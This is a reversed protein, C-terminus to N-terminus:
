PLPRSTTSPMSPAAGAPAPVTLGSVPSATACFREWALLLSDLEAHNPSDPALSGDAVALPITVPNPSSVLRTLTGYAGARLVLDPGQRTVLTALRQLDITIESDVTVPPGDEIERMRVASCSPATVEWTGPKGTLIMSKVRLRARGEGLLSFQSPDYEHLDGAHAQAVALAEPLSRITPYIRMGLVAAFRDGRANIAAAHGINGVMAILQARDSDKYAMIWYYNARSTSRPCEVTHIEFFIAYEALEGRRRLPDCSTRFRSIFEATLVETAVPGQELATLAFVPLAPDTTRVIFVNPNDDREIGTMGDLLEALTTRVWDLLAPGSPLPTLKGSGQATAPGALMVMALWLILIRM